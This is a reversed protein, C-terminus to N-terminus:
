NSESIYIARLIDTLSLVGLGEFFIERGDTSAEDPPPVVWLRHFHNVLMITAAEMLSANRSVTVPRHMEMLDLAQHRLLDQVTAGAM